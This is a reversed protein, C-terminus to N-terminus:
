PGGARAPGADLVITGTVAIGLAATTLVAGVADLRAVGLPPDDRLWTRDGAPLWQPPFGDPVVARTLGRGAITRGIVEAAQTVDARVVTARYDAVREAFLDVLDGEAHSRRYDRPVPVDQPSETTPVDTLAARIRGLVNERSSM